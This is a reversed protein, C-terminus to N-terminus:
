QQELWDIIHQFGSERADALPTRGWRDKISWNVNSQALLKLVDLHGSAAAIHMATRGDYNAENVKIGKAILNRIERLDNTQAAWLLNANRQSKAEIEILRPDTKENVGPNFIHDFNHFSYTDLLSKCFEIGRISNGNEDLRPSYICFGMVNPIVVMIVGSVGSKAPLGIHFAWEGSFNYMGCSYMLSLCHQVTMPNLIRTETIPCIGGNALSAALVSMRQTNAEISCCQFYFELTEILNTEKPFAGQERMFYGLAYNRDATERESLYVANSFGPRVGGMLRTWNNMVYEFRDAAPLHPRVMSLTMIAGANIMPNHPLGKHNLTIENFTQGSPECGVHQHVVEEGQEELALCYSIPKCASQVCFATKFDGFNTRQGDVTCISLAWKDPNVRSLQPIYNAVKGKQITRCDNFLGEVKKSFKQFEPIIMKGQIAKEIVLFSSLAIQSFQELSLNQPKNLNKWSALISQLRKDTKIELGLASLNNCFQDWPLSDQGVPLLAQYVPEVRKKEFLDLSSAKPM